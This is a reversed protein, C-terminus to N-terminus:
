LKSKVQLWGIFRDYREGPRRHYVKILYENETEYYNGETKSTSLQTESATVYQYNYAGQKLLLSASYKGNDNKLPYAEVNNYTFDGNLYISENLNDAEFLFNVEIYDAEIDADNGQTYRVFFRGNQDEDYRYIGPTRPRDPFISANLFPSQYFTRDINLGIGKRGVTEFRRYENGAEFILERNHEFVMRNPYVSTPKIKARQNDIRNNQQVCVSLENIPDRLTLSPYLLEFSLQQHSKNFDIDTNGSVSAKIQMQQEVVSFCATLLNKDPNTDDTVVVAYNGSIKMRADNNPFSLDYHIYNVTTNESFRYEKVLQDNFGDLYDVESLDSPTWDANCHIIRYRVYPNEVSLKDFKVTVVDNGNLSIIPPLFVNNNVIVQATKIEDSFPKTSYVTQASLRFFCSLFFFIGLLYKVM